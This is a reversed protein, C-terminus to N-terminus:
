LTAKNITNKSEKLLATLIGKQTGSCILDWNEEIRNTLDKLKNLLEDRQELLESPLLGCKNATTGADAILQANAEMKEMTGMDVIAVTFGLDAVIRIHSNDLSKIPEWDNKTFKHKTTM